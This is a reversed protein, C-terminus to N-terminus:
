QLYRNGRVNAKRYIRDPYSFEMFVGEFGGFRVSETPGLCLFCDPKLSDHFLEFVKNQLEEGFYILVNRCIIIDMEGFVADTVLNHDSFVINTKLSKRMIASNTDATFYDAFSNAGGASHYNKTFGQVRDIPFIGEAAKQLVVENIDTAYIQARSSLGVENLLIAVSYVEEGTSCGACWVKLHGENSLEPIISNRLAFYFGPDRFMDTVNITLDLLLAEFFSSDYLVRHQLESICSLDSEALRHLVRRRLSSRSYGRFDYGYKSCIAELLLDIEITENELNQEPETKM